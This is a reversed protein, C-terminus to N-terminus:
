RETDSYNKKIKNINRVVKIEDRVIEKVNFIKLKVFVHSSLTLFHQKLKSERLLGM